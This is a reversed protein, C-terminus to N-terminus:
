GTGAMRNHLMGALPEDEDLGVVSRRDGSRLAEFLAGAGAVQDDTMTLGAVIADLLAEVPLGRRAAMRAPGVLREDPGLKILPNRAVRRIPDVLTTGAFRDLNSRGYELIETRTWEEAEAALVAAMTEAIEELRSRISPDTVAQAVTDHGAQLGLFASAAHLGNVLWLKRLRYLQLDDILEFGDVGPHDGIWDQKAVKFEFRPEVELSLAHGIAGPVMRDVLTEPLGVSTGLDGVRSELHQRLLATNPNANECALINGIRNDARSLAASITPAVRHLVGAGVATCVLDASATAAVANKTDAAHVASVGRVAGASRGDNGVQIVEYSGSSNLQNILASSIDIFVVNWGARGFLWGLLGRGINGAGFVAVRPTTM